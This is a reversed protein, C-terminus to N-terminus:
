RHRAQWNVNALQRQWNAAPPLPPREKVLGPAGKVAAPPVPPSALQREGTSTQWSVNALQRQWNAAPPLPPCRPASKLSAPPGKLRPPPCRRARWNVSALQREGPEGTENKCKSM